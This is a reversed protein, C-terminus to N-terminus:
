GTARAAAEPGARLKVSLEAESSSSTTDSVTKPSPV